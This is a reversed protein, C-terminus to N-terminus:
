AEGQDVLWNRELFSVNSEDNSFEQFAGRGFVEYREVLDDSQFTFGDELGTIIADAVVLGPDDDDAPVMSPGENGASSRLPIDAGPVDSSSNFLM